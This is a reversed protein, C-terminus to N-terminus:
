TVVIFPDVYVTKSAVAMVVRAVIYGKEQPTFTVGLKLTNWTASGNPGTGSDGTWAQTSTAQAAATALIDAKADSIWTGLSQTSTGLYMMEVWIEGDTFASAGDHVIEVHATIASGVTDNWKHIEPAVFHITPYEANATTTIKWSIPATETNADSYVTTSERLTGAYDEIWIRYNTDAGSADCNYLEARFSAGSPAGATLSGSWSTPMKCDRFTVQGGVLSAACLNVGASANSFDCGSFQARASTSTDTILASPSTGGSAISCGNAEFTGDGLRIGQASAAFKWECSQLKVSSEAAFTTACFRMYVSATQTTGIYFKCSEYVQRSGSVNAFLMQSSSAGGVGNSFTLGYCYLAGNVTIASAGTTSVTGSTALATPPEAADDGCLLQCPAAQTGPCTITIASATSEAHNDSVWIRDGASADAMAGTLDLNALAWTSGNDANSGDTSRVYGPNAM